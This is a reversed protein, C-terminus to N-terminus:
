ASCLGFTKRALFILDRIKYAATFPGFYTNSKPNFIKSKSITESKDALRRIQIESKNDTPKRRIVVQPIETTYDIVLFAYSKDDRLDINYKPKHKQILM